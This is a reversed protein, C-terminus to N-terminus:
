GWFQTDIKACPPCRPFPYVKWWRFGLRTGTFSVQRAIIKHYFVHRVVESFCSSCQVTHPGRHITHVHTGVTTLLRLPIYQVVISYSTSYLIYTRRWRAVDMKLNIVNVSLLRDRRPLSPRVVVLPDADTWVWEHDMWKNNTPRHTVSVKPWWISINRTVTNVKSNHAGQQFYIFVTVGTNM